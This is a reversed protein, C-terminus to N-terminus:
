AGPDPKSMWRIIAMEVPLWAFGATVYFLLEAVVGKGLIFVGGFAMVILAYIAIFGVTLLMGIFKRTRLPLM